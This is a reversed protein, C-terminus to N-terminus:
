LVVTQRGRAKGHGASNTRKKILYWGVWTPASCCVLFLAADPTGCSIFASRNRAKSALISTLTALVAKLKGVHCKKKQILEYM